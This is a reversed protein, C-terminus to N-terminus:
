ARGAMIARCRPPSPLAVRAPPDGFPSGYGVVRLAKDGGHFRWLELPQYNHAIDVRSIITSVDCAALATVAFAPLMLRRFITLAIPM